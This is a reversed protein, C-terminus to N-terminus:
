RMQYCHHNDPQEQHEKEKKGKKTNTITHLRTVVLLVTYAPQMLCILCIHPNNGFPFYMHEAKKTHLNGKRRNSSQLM